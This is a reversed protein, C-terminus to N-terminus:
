PTAPPVLLLKYMEVVKTQVDALLGNINEVMYWVTSVNSPGIPDIVEIEGAFSPPQIDVGLGKKRLNDMVNSLDDFYLMQLYGESTCLLMRQIVEVTLQSGGYDAPVQDEAFVGEETIVRVEFWKIAWNWSSLAPIM